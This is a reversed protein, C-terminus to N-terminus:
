GNLRGERRHAEREAEMVLQRLITEGESIQDYRNWLVSAAEQLIRMLNFAGQYIEEPNFKWHSGGRYQNSYLAKDMEANISPGPLHRVTDLVFNTLRWQLQHIKNENSKWWSFYDGSRVDAEDTSRSGPPIFQATHPFLKHLESLHATRLRDKSRSLADFLEALFEEGPNTHHHGFTEGDLAIILYGGEAGMWADLCEELERVFQEGHPWQGRYDAFRNTWVNSRLFVALGDFSYITNKPVEIGYHKLNGDDAVTWKYGLSKFLSVLRGEFAMEPPFIGEPNYADSLLSRVGVEQLQIQREVEQLPILPFIPHYAGTATLELAGNDHAERINELIDSFPGSLLEVLSLNINMTFRLDPFARIQRTIQRTLPGYSQEVEEALTQADQVPPQYLHFLFNVYKM